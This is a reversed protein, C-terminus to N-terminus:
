HDNDCTMLSLESQQELPDVILLKFESLFWSFAWRIDEDGEEDDESMEDLPEDDDDGDGDNVFDIM